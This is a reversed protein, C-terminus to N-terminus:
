RFKGQGIMMRPDPAFQTQADEVDWSELMQYYLAAKGECRAIVAAPKGSCIEASLGWHLASRWEEPFNVTETLNVPNTAQVQLLIHATGAAATADPVLWFTVDLQTAKKNVWFSNVAGTQTVQGLTLYEQTSLVTLQRRVGTSDLYYGQLGRLPKVMDVDGGPKFTYTAQGAVLTVATDVQLWLKLGSTQWTNILDRLRRLYKALQEPSPTDGDQLICADQMADYIIGYPTNIAPTTM